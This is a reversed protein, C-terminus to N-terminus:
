KQPLSTAESSQPVPQMSAAMNILEEKSTPEYAQILIDTGDRSFFLAAGSPGGSYRGPLDGIQVIEYSTGFRQSVDMEPAQQVVFTFPAQQSETRVRPYYYENVSRGESEWTNPGLPILDQPIQSYAPMFVQFSVRQAAAQWSRVQEAYHPLKSWTVKTDPAPTYSFLAADITPNLEFSTYEWANAPGGEVGVGRIESKLQVYIEQDIWTTLHARRRAVDTGPKPVLELKYTQRGLVVETGVLRADYNRSANAMLGQVNAAGFAAGVGGLGEAFFDPGIWSASNTDTSYNWGNTGDSVISFRPVVPLIGDSSSIVETPTTPVVPTGALTLIQADSRSKNPAQFWVDFQWETYYDVAQYSRGTIRGKYSSLGYREAGTAAKEARALIEQADASQTNGPLLTAALVLVLIAAAGTVAVSRPVLSPWRWEFRTRRAATTAKSAEAPRLVDQWVRSQVAQMEAEDVRVNEVMVVSRAVRAMDADLDPRDPASPGALLDDLFNDLLQMDNDKKPDNM